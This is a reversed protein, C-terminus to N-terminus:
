ENFINVWEADGVEVGMNGVSGCGAGCTNNVFAVYGKGNFLSGPNPYKKAM